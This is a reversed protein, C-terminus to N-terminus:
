ACLAIEFSSDEVFPQLKKDPSQSMLRISLMLRNGSIEPILNLQSEIYMRLMQFSRGQPLNQQFHGRRAAVKQPVGSDRLLKLLVYISEALPAVAGIWEQLDAERNAESSHQWHHYAPLDFGCTGGPISIRSRLSILWDNDTLFQGPKGTQQNLKQFCQNLKDYIKNLAAESISPNGRFSDLQQKNKEIDRLIDNKLDSRSAVDLVEFLTILAFHHDIFNQRNM